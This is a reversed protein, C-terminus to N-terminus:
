SKNSHGLKASRGRSATAKCVRHRDVDGDRDKADDRDGNKPIKEERGTEMEDISRKDSGSV